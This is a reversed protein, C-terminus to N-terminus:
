RIALHTDNPLQNFLYRGLLKVELLISPFRIEGCEPTKARNDLNDNRLIKLFQLTLRRRPLMKDALTFFLLFQFHSFRLSSEAIANPTSSDYQRGYTHNERM